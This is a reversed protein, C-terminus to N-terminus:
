QNYGSKCKYNIILPLLLPKELLVQLCWSGPEGPTSPDDKLAESSVQSWVRPVGGDLIKGGIRRSTMLQNYILMM